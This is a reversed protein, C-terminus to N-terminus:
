ITLTRMEPTAIVINILCNKNNNDKLLQFKNKTILALTIQQKTM